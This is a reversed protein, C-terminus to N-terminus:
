VNFSELIGVVLKAPVIWDMLWVRRILFGWCTDSVQAQHNSGSLGFSTLPYPCLRLVIPSSIGVSYLVLRFGHLHLFFPQSWCPRSIGMATKFSLTVSEGWSDKYILDSIWATFHLHLLLGKRPTFRWWYWLLAFSRRLLPIIICISMQFMPNCFEWFCALVMMELAGSGLGDMCSTIYWYRFCQELHTVWGVHDTFGLDLYCVWKGEM